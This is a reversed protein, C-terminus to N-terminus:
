DKRGDKQLLALSKNGIPSSRAMNLPQQEPTANQINTDKISRFFAHLKLLSGPRLRYNESFDFTTKSQDHKRERADRSLKTRKAVSLQM